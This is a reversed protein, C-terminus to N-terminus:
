KLGAYERKAAVWVPVEADADKWLGLFDQYAAKAKEKERNMALARAIELQALPIVESTPRWGRNDLIRQFEGIAKEADKMQQYALGRVYIVWYSPVTSWAGGREYGRAPELAAVAGAGNGRGLQNLALVLPYDVRQLEVDQPREKVAADVWKEAGASDGCVAMTLTAVKQNRGEAVEGLSEAVLRKAETCNGHSAQDLAEVASVLAPIETMKKEKAMAKSEEFAGHAAKM